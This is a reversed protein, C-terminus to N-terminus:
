NSNKHLKFYYGKYFELSYSTDLFPIKCAKEPNKWEDVLKYGLSELENVYRQENSIKYPCFATGMNQLTYYTPKSNVPTLNLLLNEPLAQFRGLMQVLDEEIYQLSGAALLIDPHSSSPISEVFSLQSLGAEEVMKKGANVVSPVELITWSLCQPFTLYSQYANYAVGMHGGIEFIKVGPAFLRNLWYLIPYDASYIRSRREAYLGPSDSNDYGMPKGAPMSGQAQQFNNFVGRFLNAREATAFLRDYRNILYRKVFYNNKIIQKITTPFETM